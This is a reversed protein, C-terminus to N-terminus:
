NDHSFVQKAKLDGNTILKQHGARRKAYQQVIDTPLGAAIAQRPSILEPPKRIDVSLMDAMAIIQEPPFNWELRGTSESVEIGECRKGSRLREFADAELGTLRYNIIEQAWRLTEIEKGIATDSLEETTAEAAYDAGDLCVRRASKCSHRASCYRCHTGPITQPNEGMAVAASARLQQGYFQLGDYTIVWERVPGQKHYVRPQVIRLHIEDGPEALGCCYCLLQWNSFVEVIGYGYKFDWIWLRKGNRTVADPTGWCQPHVAPINIRQEVSREGDILLVDKVYISVARAMEEPMEPKENDLLWSAAHEHAITGERAADGSESEPQQQQLLISGPCAIWQGASSPPLFAHPM